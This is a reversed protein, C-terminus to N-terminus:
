CFIISNAMTPNNKEKANIPKEHSKDPLTHWCFGTKDWNWINKLEYEKVVDQLHEGWSEIIEESVDGDEGDVLLVFSHMIIISRRSRWGDM